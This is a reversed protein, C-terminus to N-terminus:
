EEEVHIFWPEGGSLTFLIRFVRDRQLMQDTTGRLSYQLGINLSSERLIPLGFGGAVGIENIGQGNIHYYTENYFFGFRYALRQLFPLAVVDHKPLIECGGSFRYSDRIESLDAGRANYDSWHQYYVDGAILLRDSLYSIGGGVAFPLRVNGGNASTTDLTTVSGNTFSFYRDEEAKLYSTTTFVAGISLTKSNPMGFINGLGTYTAGFTFGIGRLGLSRDVSSNTYDTSAFLQSITHHLTGFYYNLKTGLSLDAVPNISVGIHGESLGGSGVYRTTYDLNGPPSATSINYNVKSFPTIGAGFVIGAPSYIPFALMFGNFNASSLFSSGANDTASYGEYLLSVAFRTTTIRSWDAPNLQDISNTSLVAISAGGMGMARSTSYYELDGIWYRSYASGGNDAYTLSVFAVLLLICWRGHNFFTMMTDM